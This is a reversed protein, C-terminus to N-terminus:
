HSIFLKLLDATVCRWHPYSEDSICRQKLKKRPFAATESYHHCRFQGQLGIETRLEANQLVRMARRHIISKSAHVRNWNSITAQM